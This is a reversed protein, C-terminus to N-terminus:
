SYKNGNEEGGIITKKYTVKKMRKSYNFNVAYLVVKIPLLGALFTFINFNENLIVAATLCGLLIYRAIYQIITYGTAKSQSMKTAKTLTLYLLRYNLVSVIYGLILGFIYAKGKFLLLVIVAMVVLMFFSYKIINLQEKKFLFDNEENVKKLEEQERESLPAYTIEETEEIIDKIKTKKEKEKKTM